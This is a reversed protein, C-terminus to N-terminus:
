FVLWGIFTLIVSFVSISPYFGWLTVSLLVNKYSYKDGKYLNIPMNYCDIKGAIIDNYLGRFKREQQLYYADLFYFILTPFVSIFVFIYNKSNAALALFAAFVTITWTKIQFSNTNMRTIVNQVFQLHLRKDSKREDEGM